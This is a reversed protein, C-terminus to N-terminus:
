RKTPGSPNSARYFHKLQASALHAHRSKALYTNKLYGKLSKKELPYHGNQIGVM